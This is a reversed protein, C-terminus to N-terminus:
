TDYIIKYENDSARNLFGAAVSVTTTELIGGDVSVGSMGIREEAVVEVLLVRATLLKARIPARAASDKAKANRRRTHRVSSSLPSQLWTLLFGELGIVNHPTRM